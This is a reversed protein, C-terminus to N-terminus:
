SDNDPLFLPRYVISNLKFFFSVRITTNTPQQYYQYRLQGTSCIGNCTRPHHGSEPLKSNQTCLWSSCLVGWFAALTGGSGWRRRINLVLNWECANVEETVVVVIVIIQSFLKSICHWMFLNFLQSWSDVQLLVVPLFSRTMLFIPYIFCIRNISIACMVNSTFGLFLM